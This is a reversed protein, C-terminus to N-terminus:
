TFVRSKSVVAYKPCDVCLGVMFWMVSWVLTANPLWTHLRHKRM